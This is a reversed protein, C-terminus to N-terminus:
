LEDRTAAFRLVREGDLDIEGEPRMGIKGLVRVSAPNAPMVLGIVRALGISQFAYGLCASAAETALGRGWYRPLFRFGIDTEGLDDLHKLGCFGVIRGTEKLVCAWRGYGVAEFDPYEIIAERVAEISRAPAEGTYRMVEPDSNLAFLAGADGVEFARHM